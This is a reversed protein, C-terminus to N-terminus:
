NDVRVREAHDIVIVPMPQKRAELKLGLQEMADFITPGQAGAGQGIEFALDFKGQLGTMDMVPADVGFGALELVFTAMSINHCERRRLGADTRSWDCTKPGAGASRQIKVGSAAAMLAYTPMVQQDRHVALKFRDELLAQLMLRMTNEPTDPAAKAIIDFHDTDVWEPGGDVHLSDYAAMIMYKLSGNRFEMRLGPLVRLGGKGGASVKISAEDFAAKRVAPGTQVQAILLGPHPDLDPIPLPVAAPKPKPQTAAPQAQALMIQPRTALAPLERAAVASVTQHELTGAEEQDPVPLAAAVPAPKPQAPAARHELTGGALLASTIACVAGACVLRSRSIRPVPGAELILRIRHPLSSGPMAMGCVQIRSGARAVSRAIELLYGAYDHPDHGRELVAADCSEEALASLRSELWWALPHFWFLARNLLALWQVLPDRRRAHENEHALVAGLQGAPWEQWGDPLIVSARLFGVTVPAACSAHTLKKDRLASGRILTRARVTGIALRVLLTGFGILYVGTVVDHWTWAPGPAVDPVINGPAADLQFHGLSGYTVGAAPPITETSAPLIRAATKPGWATWAPLLLMLLMVGTWLAHRASANRVRMIWLVAAAVAAILTSRIACELLLHEV